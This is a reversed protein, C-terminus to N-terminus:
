RINHHCDSTLTEYFNLEETKVIEFFTWIKIELTSVGVILFNPKNRFLNFCIFKFTEECEDSPEKECGISGGGSELTAHGHTKLEHVSHEVSIM